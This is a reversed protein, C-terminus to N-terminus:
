CDKIRLLEQLIIGRFHNVIGWGVDGAMERPNCIVLLVEELLTYCIIEM